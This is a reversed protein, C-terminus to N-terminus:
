VIFALLGLSLFIVAVWIRAKKTEGRRLKDFKELMVKDTVVFLAVLLPLVFIFNYYLLYAVGNVYNAQDHLLGLIFLYPGGTCPFEAIGVFIGLALAAWITAKGVLESIKGKSIEPIKLKIPFNPIFENALTLLGFIIILSGGVKSMFKPIGFVDLAQLVGFGILTYTLYIGVIYTLGILIINGRSRKLSLLFAITIFLISFACPNISDVLGAITVVVPMFAIHDQLDYFNLNLLGAYSALMALVLLGFAGLALYHRTKM